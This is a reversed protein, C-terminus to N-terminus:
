RETPTPTRRRARQVTYVVFGTVALAVLGAGAGALAVVTPVPDKRPQPVLGDLPSASRQAPAAGHEAPLVDTLAAVPDIMGHGLSDRHGDIGPAQLATAEIRAMVQRASLEPFRQRILAALGAVYPTAFSTGQIPAQDGNAGITFNTLRNSGPAPDLSVVETGPAAVDVWPGALTFGAPEGDEGIAAVTLVDGDFWAPSAVTHVTGQTNPPNCTSRPDSNGAAAVVVVNNDAAYKVAAQLDPANVQDPTAAFCAAESINIVTAGLLVARVVALALSTTNGAGASDVERGQREDFYKVELIGTSQRISVIGADPAIGTFGTTPDDAAAIIGAVLTGHGDCDLLASRGQVYDGGDSLRGALRPHPNVGTDIVAVVQGAGTAFKRLDPFRLRGQGWPRPEVTLAPFDGAQVCGRQGVEPGRVQRFGPRSNDFPMNSNAAAASPLAAGNVPPPVGPPRPRAPQAGAAPAWGTWLLLTAAALVAAARSGKRRIM